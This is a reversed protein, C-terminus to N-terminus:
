RHRTHLFRVVITLWIKVRSPAPQEQAQTAAEAGSSSMSPLTRTPTLEPEDESTRAAGPLDDGL